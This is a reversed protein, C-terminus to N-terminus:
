KCGACEGGREGSPAARFRGGMQRHMHLSALLRASSCVLLLAASSGPPGPFFSGRVVDLVTCLPIHVVRSIAARSPCLTCVVRSIILSEEKM